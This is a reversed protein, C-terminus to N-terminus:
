VCHPGEAAQKTTNTGIVPGLFVTSTNITLTDGALDVEFRDLGRPAPGDRKEGVRNYKSGHCPCEFWQASGCWPVRCGLHVCKQYLAVVGKEMGAYIAPDYIKSAAALTPADTPYPQLYTRAAPVYYPSKTDNWQKQAAALSATVKGGFGGAGTPWLFALLSAGFAGAWVGGVTLIARNFFKRRSMSLEEPDLPEWEAVTGADRAVPVGGARSRSEGARARADATEVAEVDTGPAEAAGSAGANRDRAVTERSLTGANDGSRRTIVLLAIGGLLVIAIIAIAIGM